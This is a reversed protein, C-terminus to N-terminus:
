NTVIAPFHNTILYQSVIMTNVSIGNKIKRSIDYHQKIPDSINKYNLNKRLRDLYTKVHL